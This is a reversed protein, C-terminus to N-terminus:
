ELLKKLTQKNRQCPKSAQGYPLPVSAQGSREYCAASPPVLEGTNTGDRGQSLSVTM